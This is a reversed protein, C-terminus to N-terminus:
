QNLSGEEKLKEAIVLANTTLQQIKTSLMSASSSQGSTKEIDHVTSTFYPKIWDPLELDFVKFTYTSLSLGQLVEESRILFVSARALAKLVKESQICNTKLQKPNGGRMKRIREAEFYDSCTFFVPKSSFSNFTAIKDGMLLKQHKLLGIKRVPSTFREKSHRRFQKPFRAPNQSSKTLKSINCNKTWQICNKKRNKLQGETQTVILIQISKCTCPWQKVPLLITEKSLHCFVAKQDFLPYFQKSESM